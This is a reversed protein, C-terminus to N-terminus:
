LVPKKTLKTKIVNYWKKVVELGRYYFPEYLESYTINNEELGKMLGHEFAYFFPILYAYDSVSIAVFLLNLIYAILFAVFGYVLEKGFRNLAIKPNETIVKNSM